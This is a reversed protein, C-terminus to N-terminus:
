KQAQQLCEADRQNLFLRLIENSKKYNSYRQIKDNDEPMSEMKDVVTKLM